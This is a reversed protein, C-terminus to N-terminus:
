EPTKVPLGYRDALEQRSLWRDTNEEMASVERRNGWASSIVGSYPPQPVGSLVLTLGTLSPSGAGLNRDNTIFRAWADRVVELADSSSVTLGTQGALQSRWDAEPPAPDFLHERPAEM